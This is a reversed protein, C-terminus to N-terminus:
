VPLTLAIERVLAEMVKEHQPFEDIGQTFKDGAAGAIERLGASFSVRLPLILTTAEVVM